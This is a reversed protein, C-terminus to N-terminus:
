EEGQEEEKVKAWSCVVWLFGITVILGATIIAPEAGASPIFGHILIEKFTM